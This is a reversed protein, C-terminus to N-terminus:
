HLLTLVVIAVGMGASALGALRVTRRRRPIGFMVIFMVVAGLASAAWLDRARPGRALPAARPHRKQWTEYNAGRATLFSEFARRSTFDRGGWLLGRPEQLLFPPRSSILPRDAAAAAITLLLPLMLLAAVVVTTVLSSGSDKGRVGAGPGRTTTGSPPAIPKAPRLAMRRM